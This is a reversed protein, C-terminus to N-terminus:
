TNEICADEQAVVDDIQQLLIRIKESMWLMEQM